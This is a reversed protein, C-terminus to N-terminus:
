HKPFMYTHACIGKFTQSRTELVDEGPMARESHGTDVHVLSGESQALGDWRLWFLCLAWSLAGPLSITEHRVLLQQRTYLPITEGFVKWVPHYPMDHKLDM